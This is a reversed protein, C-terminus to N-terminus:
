QICLTLYVYVYVLWRKKWKNSYKEIKREKNFILSASTEWHWWGGKSFQRRYWMLFINLSHRVLKAQDTGVVRHNHSPTQGEYARACPWTYFLLVAHASSWTCETCNRNSNVVSYGHGTCNRQVIMDWWIQESTLRRTIIPCGVSEEMRSRDAIFFIGGRARLCIGRPCTVLKWTPSEPPISLPTRKWM